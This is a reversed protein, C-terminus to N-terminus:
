HLAPQTGEIQRESGREMRVRGGGGSASRCPGRIGPGLERQRRNPRALPLGPLACSLPLAEKPRLVSLGLQGQVRRCCM